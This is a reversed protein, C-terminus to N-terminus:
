APPANALHSYSHLQELRLRPPELVVLFSQNLIPSSDVTNFLNRKLVDPDTYDRIFTKNNQTIIAITEDVLPLEHHEADHEHQHPDRDHAHEMSMEIGVAHTLAHCIVPAYPAILFVFAFIGIAIQKTFLRM